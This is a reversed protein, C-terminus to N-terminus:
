GANLCLAPDVSAARRLPSLCALLAALGLLSTAAALVFPDRPGVQFLLGSVLHSLILAAGMGGLLGGVIPVLARRLVESMVVHQQAGMAMRVGIEYTRTSVTYSVVGYVGVVGLLLAMGAFLSFLLTTLRPASTTTRLVEDMTAVRSIPVDGHVSRVAEQVAAALGEPADVSRVTLYLSSMGPLQYYSFFTEPRPERALDTQRIDGVVGIVTFDLHGFMQMTRGVPDDSGFAEKALTENIVGSMPAEPRDTEDFWRGALLPVDLTELLGPTVLQAMAFPPPVGESLSEGDVTYATSISTPTLPLFTIGGVGTVGPLAGARDEVRRIYQARADEGWSEGEPLTLKLTLLHDTRFGPDVRHLLWSSKLLLGAGALLVVSLAVEFAMLTRNMGRRHSGGAGRSGGDSLHLAVDQGAAKVAPVLGFLLTTVLSAVLAFALLRHDFGITDGRPVGTELSSRLGSLLAAALGVGLAGGSLGLLLNETLLQGVLRRRSAGLSRRVAMEQVRGAGQALLLNAVNACAVLLVMGVAGLLLWLTTRTSGVTADLYPIATAQALFAEDFVGPEEAHLVSAVSALEAQAQQPSAGHALRALVTTGATGEYDSFDTPDVTLPVWFRWRRSVPRYGAPMVGVVVRPEGGLVVSRALIDPDSGFRDTWIEHSLVVVGDGGVVAEDEAFGRGLAPRVGMVDFHSPSVAAGVLEEAVGAGTLALRQWAYGTVAEFSSVGRRIREMTSKSLVRGGWVEVIRHADPYALPRLLVSDIVGFMATNAGVGLALTLGAVATFGPRRRLFRLSLRLDQGLVRMMEGGKGELRGRWPDAGRHGGAVGGRRPVVKTWGRRVRELPRGAVVRVAQRWYWRDADRKAGIRDVLSGYEEELDGTIVEREEGLLMLGLLVRPILPPRPSRM